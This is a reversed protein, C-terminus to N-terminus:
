QKDTANPEGKVKECCATEVFQVASAKVEEILHSVESFPKTCLYNLVKNITETPLTHKM